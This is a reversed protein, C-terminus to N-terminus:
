WDGGPPTGHPAMYTPATDRFTLGIFSLNRVPDVQSAGSVNFLTALQTGVVSGDSPPPLPSATTVNHWLYLKKASTDFYFEGPADLEARRPFLVQQCKNAFAVCCSPVAQLLIFEYSVVPSPLECKCSIRM